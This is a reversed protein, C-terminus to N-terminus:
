HPYDLTITYLHVQVYMYRADWPQVTQQHSSQVDDDKFIDEVVLELLPGESDHVILSHGYVVLLMGYHATGYHM